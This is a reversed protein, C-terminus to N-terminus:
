AASRLIGNWIEWRSNGRVLLLREGRQLEYGNDIYRQVCARLDLQIRRNM